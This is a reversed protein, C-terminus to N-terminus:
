NYNMATDFLSLAGFPYWNYYPVIKTIMLLCITKMFDTSFNGKLYEVELIEAIKLLEDATIDTFLM